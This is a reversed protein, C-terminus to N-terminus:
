IYTTKTCTSITKRVIRYVNIIADRRLALKTVANSYGTTYRYASMPHESIQIERLWMYTRIPWGTVILGMLLFM